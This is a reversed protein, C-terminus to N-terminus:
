NANSYCGRELLHDPLLFPVPFFASKIHIGFTWNIEMWSEIKKYTLSDVRSLFDRWETVHSIM